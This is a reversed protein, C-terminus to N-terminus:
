IECTLGCSEAPAVGREPCTGSYICSEDSISDFYSQMNPNDPIGYYLMIQHEEQPIYAVMDPHLSQNVYLALESTDDACYSTGDDLTLCNETLSFGISELFEAFTIDEAHRHVVHDENDHLHVNKHLIQEISSQYKEATLDLKQDNIYIVFDSHVHVDDDYYTHDDFPNNPHTLAAAITAGALIGLVLPFASFYTNM